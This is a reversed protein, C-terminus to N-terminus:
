GFPSPMPLGTFSSLCVSSTLVEALEPGDLIATFSISTDPALLGNRNGGMMNVLVAVPMKSTRKTPRSQKSRCWSVVRLNGPLRRLANSCCRDLQPRTYELVAAMSDPPLAPSDKAHELERDTTPLFVPKTIAQQEARAEQSLLNTLLPMEKLPFIFLRKVLLSM